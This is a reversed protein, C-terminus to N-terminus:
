SFRRSLRVIIESCESTPQCFYEWSEVKGHVYRLFDDWDLEPPLGDIFSSIFDSAPM